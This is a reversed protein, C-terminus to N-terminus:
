QHDGEEKKISEGHAFYQSDLSKVVYTKTMTLDENVIYGKAIQGKISKIITPMGDVKFVYENNLKYGAGAGAGAGFGAVAVWVLLWAASYRGM